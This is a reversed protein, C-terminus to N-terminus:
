FKDWADLSWSIAEKMEHLAEEYSSGHAAIGPLDPSEAIFANDEDSWRLVITYRM